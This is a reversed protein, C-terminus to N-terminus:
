NSYPGVNLESKPSPSGTPSLVIGLGPSAASIRSAANQLMEPRKSTLLAAAIKRGMNTYPAIGAGTLAAIGLAALPNQFSMAAAPVTAALLSRGVTGSDPYKPSLNANAAISLDQMLAKGTANSGKRPSLDEAYVARSLQAPSFVGETKDTNKAASRIINYQAWGKNLAKLEAAHEPNSRQLSERIKTLTDGLAYGLNRDNPDGSREFQKAKDNLTEEVNKFVKGNLTADDSLKNTFQNKIINDFQQVQAAPLEGNGVRASIEGLESLLQPDAKFTLKPILNEYGSSLKNRVESVGAHGIPATSSENIAGLARNYTAKNLEQTTNRQADRMFDGIVPWSSMKAETAGMGGGLIQGITPTIGEDMLKIIQPNTQPNLMKSIANGVPVAGGSFAAGTGAQLATTKGVDAPSQAGYVPQAGSFMAGQGMAAAIRKGLSLAPSAIGGELLGLAPAVVRGAGAIASGPTDAQYINEQNTLYNNFQNAKQKIYKGAPGEGSLAAAGNIIKQAPGQVLDAMGKTAGYLLDGVNKGVFNGYSRGASLDAPVEPVGRQQANVNDAKDLAQIRDLFTTTPVSQPPANNDLAQIRDLFTM